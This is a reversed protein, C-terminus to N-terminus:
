EKPKSMRCKEGDLDTDSAAETSFDRNMRDLNKYQLFFEINGTKKFMQWAFDKLM